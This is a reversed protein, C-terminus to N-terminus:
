NFFHKRVGNFGYAIFYYMSKLKGFGMYRLSKFHMRASKFKNRSKGAESLRYKLLPENILVADGHDRLISLWTIYDEHADDWKMDYNKMVKKKILVSSCNIINGYLLKKYSVSEPVEIIRGTSEGSETMLERATACMVADTEDLLKLQKELKDPMWWDDSDLFSVCRGESM